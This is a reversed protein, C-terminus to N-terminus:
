SISLFTKRVLPKPCFEVNGKKGTRLVPDFPVKLAHWSKDELRPRRWIHLHFFPRSIPPHLLEANKLGFVNHLNQMPAFKCLNVEFIDAPYFNLAHLSIFEGYGYTFEGNTNQIQLIDEVLLFL